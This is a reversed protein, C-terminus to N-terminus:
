MWEVERPVFGGHYNKFIHIHILMTGLLANRELSVSKPNM